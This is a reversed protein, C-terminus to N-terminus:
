RKKRFASMISTAVNDPLHLTSKLKHFIAVALKDCFILLSKLASDQPRPRYETAIAAVEKEVTYYYLAISRRHVGDPCTMPEPHGHFSDKATNFIVCRNFQPVITRVCKSMDTAWLELAGGWAEDWRENLYVLVNIRRHWDAHYPHVTFDAHVNLYGGRISQHIGGSGLECDAILNEIGTLQELFELFRPSNLEKLVASTLPPLKAVNGGQKNENYHRYSMWDVQDFERYLARTTQTDLFNEFVISPFPAAGRYEQATRAAERNWREYDFVPNHMTANM